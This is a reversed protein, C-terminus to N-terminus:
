IFNEPRYFTISVAIRVETAGWHGSLVKCHSVKKTLEDEFM